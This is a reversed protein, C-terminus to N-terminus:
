NEKIYDLVREELFPLPLSGGSLLLTHFARLDFDEGLDAQTKERLAMIFDAGVVASVAAGPQAIQLLVLDNAEPRDIGAAEVLYRAAEEATWGYAHIGTDVVLQAAQILAQQLRGLNANPDDAYLGMEWALTEAYHAWGEDFAPTRLAKRFTSLDAEQVMSLQLHRGPYTERYVQTRMDFHAERGTFGAYFVARRSDDLAAPEYFGGEFVPTMALDDELSREVITEVEGEAEMLLARLTVLIDLGLAYNRSVTAQRFVEQLPLDADFGIETAADRVEAQLREVEALGLAHIEEASLDLSTFHDLRTQYYAEGEPQSSAGIMPTTADALDYLMTMLRDFAPLIAEETIEGGQEYYVQRDEHSLSGLSSLRVALVRVFPTKTGVQWRHAGMETMVAAYLDYPLRVGQEHQYQLFDAIQNVQGGIADLRSLMDEVDERDKFPQMVMLLYLYQDTLFGQQNYLPFHHWRYPHQAVRDELLWILLQLNFDVAEPLGARDYSKAQDLLALELVQNLLYDELAYSDLSDNRTQYIEALGVATVTEPSRLLLKQYGAEIFAEPPLDSLGSLLSELSAPQNEPTQVGPACGSVGLFLILLTAGLKKVIM